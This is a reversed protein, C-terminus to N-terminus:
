ERESKNGFEKRLFDVVDTPHNKIIEKIDLPLKGAMIKLEEANCNLASALKDIFDESPTSKANEIKSLYTYNVDLTNALKKISYGKEERLRKVEDGFSSQATM